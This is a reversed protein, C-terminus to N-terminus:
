TLSSCDSSSALVVEESVDHIDYIYQEETLPCPEVYCEYLPDVM